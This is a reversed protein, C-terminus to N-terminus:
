ATAERAAKRARKVSSIINYITVKSDPDLDSGMVAEIISDLDTAPRGPQAAPELILQAKPFMREVTALEMKGPQRGGSFLKQIFGRTVGHRTAIEKQTTDRWEERLREMIADELAM